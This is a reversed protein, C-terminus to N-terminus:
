ICKIMITNILLNYYYYYYYYYYFYYYYCNHYYYYYNGLSCLHLHPDPFNAKILESATFQQSNIKRCGYLIYTIHKILLSFLLSFLPFNGFLKKNM